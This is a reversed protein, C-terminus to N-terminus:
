VNDFGEPFISNGENVPLQSGKLNGMHVTFLVISLGGHKPLGLPYELQSGWHSCVELSRQCLGRFPPM